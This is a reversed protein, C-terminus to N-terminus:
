AQPTSIVQPSDRGHIARVAARRHFQEIAAAVIEAPVASRKLEEVTRHDVAHLDDLSWGGATGTPHATRQERVRPEVVGDLDFV